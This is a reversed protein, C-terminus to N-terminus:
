WRKEGRNTKGERKTWSHRRGSVLVAKNRPRHVRLPESEKGVKLKDAEWETWCRMVVEDYMCASEREREGRM